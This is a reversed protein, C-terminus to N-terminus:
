SRKQLWIDEHVVILTQYGPYTKRSFDEAFEKVQQPTINEDEHFSIIAHTYMRGSDKNWGKKNEIFSNYVSEKTIATNGFHGTIGLLQSPTKVPNLVYRLIGKLATHGSAKATSIKYIAM